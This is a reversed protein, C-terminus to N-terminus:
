LLWVADCELLRYEEHRLNTDRIHMLTGRIRTAPELQSSCAGDHRRKLALAGSGPAPFATESGSWGWCACIFAMLGWGSVRGSTVYREGRTRDRSYVDVRARERSEQLTLTVLGVNVAERVSTHRVSAVSNGLAVATEESKGM